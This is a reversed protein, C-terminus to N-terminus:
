RHPGRVRTRCPAPHRPPPARRCARPTGRDRSGERRPPHSNRAARADRARYEVRAPTGAIGGFVASAPVGGPPAAAAAPPRARPPRTAERLHVRAAVPTLGRERGLSDRHAAAAAPRRPGLALRRPTERHASGQAAQIAPPVGSTGSGPWLGAAASSGHFRSARPPAGELPPPAAMPRWGHRLDNR